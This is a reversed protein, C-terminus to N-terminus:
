DDLQQAIQLFINGTGQASNKAPKIKDWVIGQYSNSMSYNIIEVVAQEGYTDASKCIKNLLQTLGTPTYSQKKERKYSLWAEITAKLEESLYDVGELAPVRKPNPNSNTNPNTNPNPNSQIPNLRCDAAIQPSNGCTAALQPSNDFDVSKENFVSDAEDTGPYKPKCDRIRQHKVWSPFEYYPKGGVTYLTVCSHAALTRLAADIEKITVRERLPFVHGKIIAPRADGRGADDAQTILGVWLRFEFDNLAAIKDSLFASEKIIRNPV